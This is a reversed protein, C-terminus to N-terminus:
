CIESAEDGAKRFEYRVAGPIQAPLVIAAGNGPTWTRPVLIYHDGIRTLPVLGDYRFRYASTAGDPPTTCPTTRVDSRSLHLDLESYIIVESSTSLQDAWEQARTQGVAVSYDTAIWFMSIGVMTFLIAWEVVAAAPSSPVESAPRRERLRKRRLVVLWWLLLVGAIVSIPAVCLGSNLPTVVYIRSLGNALVAIAVVATVVTTWRSPRHARVSDPLALYGWLVIMGLLGVFIAPVFLTDVTRMLYERIGPNLTTSDVGFYDFFWYVHAWGFYFLVATLLTTPAVVRGIAGAVHTFGEFPSGAAAPPAQEDPQTM